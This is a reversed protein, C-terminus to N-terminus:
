EKTIAAQVTKAIIAAGDANPHVRDPFVQAQDKTAAHVDIIPLSKETAVKQIAPIIGSLLNEENIGFNGPAPVFCPLCLYIKPKSTLGQATEVMATLDQAFTEAHVFNKGKTDNTGLKIIVINPNYDQAQKWPGQTVYPKDGKTSLTTGSKAFGKVEYADGLLKQLQQPWSNGKGAGVGVTISDGVCAVRIKDAAQTSWPLALLLAVCLRTGIKHFISSLM